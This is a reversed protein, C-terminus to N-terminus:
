KREGDMIIWQGDVECHQIYQDEITPDYYDIFQKQLVMNERKIESEKDREREREEAKRSFYPFATAM